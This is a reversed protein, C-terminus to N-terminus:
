CSDDTDSLRVGKPIRPGYQGTKVNGPVHMMQRPAEKEGSLEVGNAEAQMRVYGRLMKEKYTYWGPRKDVSLLIEGFSKTKLKRVHESFKAQSLPEGQLGNKRSVVKYFEAIQL